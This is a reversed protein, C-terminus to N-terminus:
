ETHAPGQAAVEFVGCWLSILGHRALVEFDDSKKPNRPENRKELHRGRVPEAHKIPRRRISRPRVKERVQQRVRVLEVGPIRILGPSIHGRNLVHEVRTECRVFTDSVLDPQADLLPVIGIDRGVTCGVRVQTLGAHFLEVVDAIGGNVFEPVIEAESM